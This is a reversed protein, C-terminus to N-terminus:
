AETPMGLAELVENGFAEAMDRIDRRPHLAYFSTRYNGADKFAVNEKVRTKMMQWPSANEIIDGLVRESTTRNEMRNRVPRVPVIDGRAKQVGSVLAHIEELADLFMNHAVVPILVLDAVFLGTRLEKSDLAPPTDIIIIDHNSRKSLWTAFESTELGCASEVHVPFPPYDKMARQEWKQASRQPDVDVVLVRLGRRHLIDALMMAMTTKGAGGKQSAVCVIRM